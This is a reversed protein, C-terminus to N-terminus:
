LVFLCLIMWCVLVSGSCGLVLVLVVVLWWLECVCDEIGGFVESCM